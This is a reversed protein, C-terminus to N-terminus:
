CKGSVDAMVHIKDKGSIYEMILPGYLCSAPDGKFLEIPKLKKDFFTLYLKMSQPSLEYTKELKRIIAGRLETISTLEGKARSLVFVEDNINTYIKIKLINKRGSKVKPKTKIPQSRGLDRRPLTYGSTLELAEEALEERRAEPYSNWAVPVDLEKNQKIQSSYSPLQPLKPLKRGQPTSKESPVQLSPSFPSLNCISIPRKDNACAFLESEIFDFFRSERNQSQKPIPLDAELADEHISKRILWQEPSQPASDFVSSDTSELSTTDSM